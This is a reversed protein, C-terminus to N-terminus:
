ECFSNIKNEWYSMKLVDKNYHEPVQYELFSNLKYETIENWNDIVIMPLYHAFYETFVHRQVIPICGMYLAEWTRVCDIGNGDPSLVFHHKAIEEIFKDFLKPNNFGTKITVWPTKYFEKYPKFRELPNTWVNGCLFALKSKEKIGVAQMKVQKNNHPTCYSNELAVPIPTIKENRVDVNQAFWHIINDPIEKLQYDFDRPNTTIIGGDSNHSVLIFKRDKFSAIQPMYENLRHTQIFVKIVKKDQLSEPIILPKGDECRDMDIDCIAQFKEGTIYDAITYM